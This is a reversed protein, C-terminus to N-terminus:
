FFPAGHGRMILTILDSSANLLCSFSYHSVTNKDEIMSIVTTNKNIKNVSYIYNDIIGKENNRKLIKNAYENITHNKLNDSSQIILSDQIFVRYLGDVNFGPKLKYDELKNPNRKPNGDVFRTMMSVTTNITNNYNVSAYLFILGIMIISLSLMILLFIRQKLKKIM